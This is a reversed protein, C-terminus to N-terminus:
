LVTTSILIYNKELAEGFDHGGSGYQRDIAIFFHTTASVPTKASKTGFLLEPIFPFKRAIFGVLIAAIVTGERVGDLRHAFVFSLIAAIVTMSVDFAVKTSGFETKWRFVISRVFSEGPLMVVDALMEMYVGVGLVLCGVLLYLLQMWYVTPSIFFLLEM